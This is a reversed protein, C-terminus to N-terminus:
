PSEPLSALLQPMPRSHEYRAGKGSQSLTASLRANSITMADPKGARDKDHPQLVRVPVGVVLDSAM